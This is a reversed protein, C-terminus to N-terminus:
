GPMVASVMRLTCSQSLPPRGTAGRGLNRHWFLQNRACNTFILTFRPAKRLYQCGHPQPVELGVGHYLLLQPSHRLGPAQAVELDVM